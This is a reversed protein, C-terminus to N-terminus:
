LGCCFRSRKYQYFLLLFIVRTKRAELPFVLKCIVKGIHVAEQGFYKGQKKRDKIGRERSMM